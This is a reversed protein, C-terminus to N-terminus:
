IVVSHLSINKKSEEKYIGSTLFIGFILLVLIGGAYILLQVVGLFDAGLLIYLAAVSALCFFLSVAAHLINKM